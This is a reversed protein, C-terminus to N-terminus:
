SKKKELDKETEKEQTVADAINRKRGMVGDPYLTRPVNVASYRNRGRVNMAPNERKNKCEAGVCDCPMNEAIM